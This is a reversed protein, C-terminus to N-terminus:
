GIAIGHELVCHGKDVTSSNSRAVQALIKCQSLRRVQVLSSSPGYKSIVEAYSGRFKRWYRSRKDNVEAHRGCFKRWYRALINNLNYDITNYSGRFKRPVEALLASVFVM